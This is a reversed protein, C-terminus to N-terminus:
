GRSLRTLLRRAAGITALSREAEGATADPRALVGHEFDILRRLDTETPTWSGDIGAKYRTASVSLVGERDCDVVVRALLDFAAPSPLRPRRVTAIILRPCRRRV